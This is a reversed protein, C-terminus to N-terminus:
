LPEGGTGDVFGPQWQFSSASPWSELFPDPRLAQGPMPKEPDVFHNRHYRGLTWSTLKPQMHDDLNEILQSTELSQSHTTKNRM